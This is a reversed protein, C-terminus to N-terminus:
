WSCACLKMLNSISDTMEFMAQSHNAVPRITSSSAKRPSLFVSDGIMLIIDFFFRREDIKMAKARPKLIIGISKKVM